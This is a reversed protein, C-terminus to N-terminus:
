HAAAGFRYRIDFAVTRPAGPTRAIHGLTASTYLDSYPLLYEKDLANHVSLGLDFASGFVRQWDARLNVLQYDDLTQLVHYTDSTSYGDSHFYSAQLAIDGARQAVPLAYRATLSYLNKPTRAFPQDALDNGNFPDTFEDYGANTHSWFGSLELRDTAMLTFELEGGKITAKGANVPVTQPPSFATSDQLLRQIDDYDSYFLALNLRLPMGGLDFTNKSGIEYDMVTEADFTEALARESGARAGFGGTRYGRRNAVYVLHDPTVHYDLSLNWTPESFRKSFRVDCLEIPVNAAPTEPTAPDGDLDRSFRCVPTGNPDVSDGSRNRIRAEREDWTYRVGLTVSLGELLGDLSQTGQAFVSKSTNKAFPSTLSWGPYATPKPSPM